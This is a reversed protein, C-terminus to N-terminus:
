ESSNFRVKFGAYHVAMPVSPCITAPVIVEGPGKQNKIAELCIYLATTARATIFNSHQPFLENLKQTLMAGSSTQSM